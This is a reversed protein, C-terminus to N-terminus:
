VMCASVRAMGRRFRQLRNYVWTRGMGTAVGLEGRSLEEVSRAIGCAIEDISLDSLLQQPVVVTNPPVIPAIDPVTFSADM